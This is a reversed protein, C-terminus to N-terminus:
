DEIGLTAKDEKSLYGRPIQETEMSENWIADVEDSTIIGYDKLNEVVLKGFIGLYAYYMAISYPQDNEDAYFIRDEAGVIYGYALIKYTRHTFKSLIRHMIKYINSEEEGDREKIFDRFEHHMIPQDNFWEKLAKESKVKGSSFYRILHISELIDRLVRGALRHNKQNLIIVADRFAFLADTQLMWVAKDITQETLYYKKKKLLIESLKDTLIIAERHFQEQAHYEYPNDKAEQVERNWIFSAM